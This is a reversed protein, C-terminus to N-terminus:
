RGFAAVAFRDLKADESGRDVIWLYAEGECRQVVEINM